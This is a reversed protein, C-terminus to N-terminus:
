IFTSFVCGALGPTTIFSPFYFFGHLLMTPITFRGFPRLLQFEVNIKNFILFKIEGMKINKFRITSPSENRNMWM